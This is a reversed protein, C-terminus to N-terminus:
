RCRGSFDRRPVVATSVAKSIVNTAEITAIETSMPLTQMTWVWAWATASAAASAPARPSDVLAACAWLRAIAQACCFVAFPFFTVRVSEFMTSPVQFVVDRVIVTSVPLASDCAFTQWTFMLKVGEVNKARASPMLETVVPARGGGAGASPRPTTSRGSKKRKGPGPGPWM